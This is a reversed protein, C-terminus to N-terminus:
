CNLQFHVLPYDKFVNLSAKYKRVNNYKQRVDIINNSNKMLASSSFQSSGNLKNKKMVNSPQSYKSEM